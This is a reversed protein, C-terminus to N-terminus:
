KVNMIIQRRLCSLQASRRNTSVSHVSQTEIIINQPPFIDSAWTRRAHIFIIWDELKCWSFQRTGRLRCGVLNIWVHNSTWMKLKHKALSNPTSHCPNLAMVSSDLQPPHAPTGVRGKRDAWRTFFFVSRYKDSWSNKFWKEHISSKNCCLSYWCTQSSPM